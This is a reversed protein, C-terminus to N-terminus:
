EDVPTRTVAIDSQRWDELINQAITVLLVYLLSVYPAYPEPVDTSLQDILAYLAGGAILQLITRLIRTQTQRSM